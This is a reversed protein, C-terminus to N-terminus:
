SPTNPSRSAARSPRWRPACSSRARRREALAEIQEDQAKRLLTTAEAEDMVEFGPPVGAELPFRKLLAQCFAHITLIQIGGPADLVRAFLRRALSRQEAQPVADILAAIEKGLTEDNAMAWRGLQVALRNRMEAAAAKTFTLCLIREPRVGDLLLRTVRDTLVKTKGTGANAVVWASQGPMTARRQADSAVKLIDFDFLDKM